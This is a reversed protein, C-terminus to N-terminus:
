LHFVNEEMKAYFSANDQVMQKWHESLEYYSEGNGGLELPLTISQELSSGKRSITVRERMKASM